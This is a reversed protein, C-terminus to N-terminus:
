VSADPAFDSVASTRTLMDVAGIFGSAVHATLVYVLRAHVRAHPPDAEPVSSVKGELIEIGSGPMVLRDDIAPWERERAGDRKGMAHGNYPM